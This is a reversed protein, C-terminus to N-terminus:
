SVFTIGSVKKYYKPSATRKGSSGQKPSSLPTTVNQKISPTTSEVILQTLTRTNIYIYELIMRKRPLLAAFELRM